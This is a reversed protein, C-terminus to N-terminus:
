ILTKNGIFNQIHVNSEFKNVYNTMEIRFKVFEQYKVYTWPLDNHTDFAPCKDMIIRKSLWCIM